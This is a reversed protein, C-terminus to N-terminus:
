VLCYSCQQLCTTYKFFPVGGMANCESVDSVQECCSSASCCLIPNASANTAIALIALSLALRVLKM